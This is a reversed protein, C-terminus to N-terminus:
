PVHVPLVYVTSVGFHKAVEKLYRVRVHKPFTASGTKFDHVCVADKGIREVVDIKSSGSRLYRPNNDDVPFIREVFLEQMGGDRLMKEIEATKLKEEALKHIAKGRDPGMALGTADIKIGAELGVKQMTLYNPCYNKADEDPIEAHTITVGGDVSSTLRMEM